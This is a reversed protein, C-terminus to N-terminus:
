KALAEEALKDITEAIQEALDPKLESVGRELKSLWASSYGLEAAVEWQDLGARMRQIALDMGDM